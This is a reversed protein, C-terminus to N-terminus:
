NWGVEGGPMEEQALEELRWNEPWPKGQASYEAVCEQFIDFARDIFGNARVIIPNEPSLTCAWSMPLSKSIFIFQFAFEKSKVVDRLRNYIMAAQGIAGDGLNRAEGKDMLFVKKQKFLTPLQRRGDLYHAAQIDYRRRKIEYKCAIDLRDRKENAISKLDGIGRPKLIDFRCKCRIGFDNVWFVSVEHDGGEFLGGLDPHAAIVGYTGEVLDWDDGTLMTQHQLLSAKFKKTAAGKEGSTAGPPDDPRRIYADHFAAVGDLLYTHIATGVTTAKSEEDLYLDRRPNMWSTLWFERPSKLIARINSSGIAPDAHYEDIPMFYYIGPECVTQPIM